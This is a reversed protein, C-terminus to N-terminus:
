LPLEQQLATSPDLSSSAPPPTSPVDPAANKALRRTARRPKAAEREARIRNLLVSAPEDAPDQPVLQGSFGRDLVGRRLAASRYLSLEVAKEAANIVILQQQVEEVIERQVSVPPVAVPLARISAINVGKVAVGRAHLRLYRQAFSSQMYLHLYQPDIGSLPAIRAVDRSVNADKLDSTVVASRDYSGRVALLVDGPRIRAGSFQEDLEASTRHLQKGNLHCGKLDKVEVYPVTGGTKVRPMLIGYRIIRVADTIAELSFIKWGRPVAPMHGPNPSAPEKYKKEKHTANWSERRESLFDPVVDGVDVVARGETAATNLARVQLPILAQAHILSQSAADLRSLHGELAEVIRVQEPLPPIVLRIAELDERRLSPTATSSDLDKWNQASLQLALFKADLARPITFFYTTDIPWCGSTMIQAGGINGKRGVVICPEDILATSTGSIVGGSAVVPVPLSPDREGSPLAKGYRPTIVAGLPTRCWGAPLEESLKSM